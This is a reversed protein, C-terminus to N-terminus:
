THLKFIQLDLVATVEVLSDARRVAEIVNTGYTWFEFVFLCQASSYSTALRRRAYRCVCCTRKVAAKTRRRFCDVLTAHHILRPM